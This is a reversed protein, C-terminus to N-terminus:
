AWSSSSFRWSQAKSGKLGPLREKLRDEVAIDRRDKLEEEDNGVVEFGYM